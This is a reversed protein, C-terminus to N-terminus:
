FIMENNILEQRSPFYFDNLGIKTTLETPKDTLFNIAYINEIPEPLDMGVSLFYDRYKFIPEDSQPNVFVCPKNLAHSFIIGHLSSTYVVKANLIEKALQKPTNDVSIVKINKPYKGKYVHVDGYHPIFIIRKEKSKKLDIGYVEKILLGPDYEFKLNSLDANYKEFLSRTLPGRVGYVKLSAILEAYDPMDNGKWGIGNIIDGERIKSIISGVLLLRNGENIFNIPDEQYLFRILDINFLDGANGKKFVTHEPRLYKYKYYKYLSVDRQTWYYTRLAM